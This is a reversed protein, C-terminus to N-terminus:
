DLLTGAPAGANGQGVIDIFPSLMLPLSLLLTVVSLGFGRARVAM